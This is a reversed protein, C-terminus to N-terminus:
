RIEIVRFQEVPLCISVEDKSCKIIRDL